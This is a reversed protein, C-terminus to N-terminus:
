FTSRTEVRSIQKQAKTIDSEVVIVKKDNIKSALLDYDILQGSNIQEVVDKKIVFEGPTLMAPVTDQNGFGQVYGGKAFKQSNILALQAAGEAVALVSYIAALEAGIIPVGSNAKWFGMVAQATDIVVSASAIAKRKKNAKEEIKETEKQAQEKLKNLRVQKQDELAVTSQGAEEALEIQKDYYDSVSQIRRDYSQATRDVDADAANAIIQSIANAIRQAGDVLDNNLKDKAEAVKKANDIEKQGRGEEEKVFEDWVISKLKKYKKNIENIISLKTEESGESSMVEEIEKQRQLDLQEIKDDSNEIYLLRLKEKLSKEAAIKDDISKNIREIDEQINKEQQKRLEALAKKEEDSFKKNAKAKEELAKKDAEEQINLREQEGNAKIVKLDAQYSVEVLLDQAKKFANLKDLKENYRGWKAKDLEEKQKDYEDQNKQLADNKIKQIELEKDTQTKKSKLIKADSETIKGTLVEYQVQLDYLSKTEDEIDKILDGITKRVDATADAFANMEKTTDQSSIILATMAAGIAVIAAIILGYPGLSAYMSAGLARLATSTAALASPLKGLLDLMSGFGSILNTIAQVKAFTKFLEEASKSDAGFVLALNSGMSVVNGIAGAITKMHDELPITEERFSKAADKVQIYRQKLKDYGAKDNAAGAASMAIQIEKLERRFDVLSKMSGDYSVKLNDIGKALDGVSKVGASADVNIKIEEYEAM